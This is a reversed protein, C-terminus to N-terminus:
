PLLCENPILDVNSGQDKCPRAAVYLKWSDLHCRRVCFRQQQV